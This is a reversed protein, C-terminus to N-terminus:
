KNSANFKEGRTENNTQQTRYENSKADIYKWGIRGEAKKEKASEVISPM